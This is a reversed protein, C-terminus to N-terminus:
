KASAGTHQAEIEEQLADWADIPGNLSAFQAVEEPLDAPPSCLLLGDPRVRISVKGPAQIHAAERLKDPLTLRGRADIELVEATTLGGHGPLEESRVPQM